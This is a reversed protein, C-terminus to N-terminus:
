KWLKYPFGDPILHPQDLIIGACFELADVLRPGPRNFMQSGDVLYIARTQKTAQQWWDNEALLNTQKETEVLDLGCPAIIIIEAQTDVIEEPTFPRGYRAFKEGRANTKVCSNLPHLGGAMEVIQPTWHGSVYVPDPWEIVLCRPKVFDGRDLVHQEVARIRASLEDLVLQAEQALGVANGIMTVEELMDGLCNPNLDLVVPTKEMSAAVREVSMFDIACVKCLSQALIVEPELAKLLDVDLTYLSQGLALAESVQRNVDAPTTFTTRQKTLCPRDTISRRLPRGLRLGEHSRGVLLETGGPISGLIETASPLLSIVRTKPPSLM